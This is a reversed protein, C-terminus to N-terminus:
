TSVNELVVATDRDPQRAPQTIAGNLQLNKLASKIHPTFVRKFTLLNAIMWEQIEKLTEGPSEIRGERYVSIRSARKDELKEWDIPIKIEAQIQDKNEYLSDFIAKNRSIEGQDIYIEIRARGGQSFVAGYSIGSFGSPFSYWNQPQGIRAGTFRYKERLDDILAQFFTRYAEGKTSVQSVAQRRKTKQWENPFVVPKFNYAPRSDDIKLVEVVVGFFQTDSDTRQNLWDLAQRHEERITDAIWIIVSAGFGAAYTLLKGLHDHDTATLQNEIVVSNGTGLDRALLDLSFDGCSAERCELELELGLAEGLDGINCALWPTFESAEKPWVDRLSLKKLVGFQM